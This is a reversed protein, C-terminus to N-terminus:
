ALFISTMTIWNFISSGTIPVIDTLKKSISKATYLLSVKSIVYNEVEKLDPITYSPLKNHTLKIKIIKEQVCQDIWLDTVVKIIAINELWTIFDFRLVGDQSFFIKQTNEAEKTINKNLPKHLKSEAM